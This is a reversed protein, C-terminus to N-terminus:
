VGNEEKEDKESSMMVVGSVSCAEIVNLFSYWRSEVNAFLL